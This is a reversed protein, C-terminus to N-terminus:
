LRSSEVSSSSKKTRVAESSIGTYTLAVLPRAFDRRVSITLSFYLSMEWPILSVPPFIPYLSM